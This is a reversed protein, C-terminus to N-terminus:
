AHLTAAPDMWPPMGVRGGPKESYGRRREVDPRSYSPLPGVGPQSLPPEKRERVRLTARHFRISWLGRSGKDIQSLHSERAAETGEERYAVAQTMGLGSEAKSMATPLEALHIITM